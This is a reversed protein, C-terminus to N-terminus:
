IEEIKSYKEPSDDAQFINTSKSKMTSETDESLTGNNIIANYKTIGGNDYRSNRVMVNTDEVKIAMEKIEKRISNFDDIMHNNSIITQQQAYFALYISLLSCLTAIIGLIISVYSNWMSAGKGWSTEPAIFQLAFPVILGGFIIILMFLLCRNRILKLITMDYLAENKRREIIQDIEDKHNQNDKM